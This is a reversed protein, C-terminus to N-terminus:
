KFGVGKTVKPATTKTQVVNYHSHEWGSLCVLGLHFICEWHSVTKGGKIHHIENNFVTRCYCVIAKWMLMYSWYLCRCSDSYTRKDYQYNIPKFVSHTKNSAIAKVVAPSIVGSKILPIWFRSKGVICCFRLRDVCVDSYRITKSEVAKLQLMWIEAHLQLSHLHFIEIIIINYINYKYLKKM